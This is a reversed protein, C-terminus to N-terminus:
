APQQVLAGRAHEHPAVEHVVGRAGAEVLVVAGVVGDSPVDKRAGAARDRSIKLLGHISYILGLTLFCIPAVWASWGGLRALQTNLM